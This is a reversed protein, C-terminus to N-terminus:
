RNGRRGQLAALRKKEADTMPAASGTGSGGGGPGAKTLMEKTTKLEAQLAEKEKEAQTLQRTVENLRATPSAVKPASDIKAKLMEVYDRLAKAEAIAASEPTGSGGGRAGIKEAETIRKQLELVMQKLEEPTKSDLDESKPLPPRKAAEAAEREARERALRAKEAEAAIRAEELIQIKRREAEEMQKCVKVKRGSEKDIEETIELGFLKCFDEPSILKSKSPTFVKKALFTKLTELDEAKKGLGVGLNDGDADNQFPSGTRAKLNLQIYVIADNPSGYKGDFYVVKKSGGEKTITLSDLYMYNEVDLFPLWVPEILSVKGGASSSPGAKIVVGGTSPPIRKAASELANKIGNKLNLKQSNEVSIEIRHLLDDKSKEYRESALSFREQASRLHEDLEGKDSFDEYVARIAQLAVKEQLYDKQLSSLEKSLEDVNEILDIKIDRFTGDISEKILTVYYKYDEAPIPTDEDDQIGVISSRIFNLFRTKEDSIIRTVIQDFAQRQASVQIQLFNGGSELKAVVQKRKANIENQNFASVNIDLQRALENRQVRPGFNELAEAKVQEERELELLEEKDKKIAEQREIRKVKDKEAREAKEARVIDGKKTRVAESAIEKEKDLRNEEEIEKADLPNDILAYDKSKRLSNAYEKTKTEIDKKSYQKDIFELLINEQTIMVSSIIKKILHDLYQECETLTERKEKVEKTDITTPDGPAEPADPAMPADPAAPAIPADPADPAGPAAPATPSASASLIIPEPIDYHPLSLETSTTIGPLDRWFASLWTKVQEKMRKTEDTTRIKIPVAPTTGKATSSTIAIGTPSVGPPKKSWSAAPIKGKSLSRFKPNDELRRWFATYLDYYTKRRAEFLPATDPAKTVIENIKDSLFDFLIKSDNEPNKSSSILRELPKIQNNLLVTLLNKFDTERKFDKDDIQKKIKVLEEFTETFGKGFFYAEFAPLNDKISKAPDFSFGSDKSTSPSTVTTSKKAKKPGWSFEPFESEYREDDARSLNFAFLTNTKFHVWLNYYAIYCAKRKLNAKASTEPINTEINSLRVKIAEFFANSYKTTAQQILDQNSSAKNIKEVLAFILKELNLAPSTLVTDITTQNQTSARQDTITRSQRAEETMMISHLHVNIDNRRLFLPLNSKDIQLAEEFQKVWLEVNESVSKDSLLDNISGPTTAM